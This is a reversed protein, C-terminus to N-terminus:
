TQCTYVSDVQRTLAELSISRNRPNSPMFFVGTFRVHVSTLNGLSKARFDTLAPILKRLAFINKSSDMRGGQGPDQLCWRNSTESNCLFTRRCTDGEVLLLLRYDTDSHM